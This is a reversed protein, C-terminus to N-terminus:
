ATKQKKNAPEESEDNDSDVAQTHPKSMLEDGSSLDDAEEGIAVVPSAPRKRILKFCLMAHPMTMSLVVETWSSYRLMVITTDGITRTEVVFRDKKRHPDDKFREEVEDGTEFQPEAILGKAAREFLLEKLRKPNTSLEKAKKELQKIMAMVIHFERLDRAEETQETTARKLNNEDQEIQDATFTLRDFIESAYSKIAPIHDPQM